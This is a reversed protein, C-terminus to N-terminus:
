TVAERPTPRARRIEGSRIFAHIAKTLEPQAYAGIAARATVEEIACLMRTLEAEDYAVAIQGQACLRRATAMQHDNRQEGLVVRRPMVLIPKEYRLATLITGMGAHAVILSATTFRAHFEGPSLFQVHQIHAPHLSSRGIQAFVDTCGAEGAWSDVARILRDFPGDTGVTVFIM